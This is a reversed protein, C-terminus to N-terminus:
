LELYLSTLPSKDQLAVSLTCPEQSLGGYKWRSRNDDYSPFEFDIHYEDERVSNHSENLIMEM